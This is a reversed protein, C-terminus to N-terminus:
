AGQHPKGMQLPTCQTKIPLKLSANFTLPVHSVGKAQSQKASKTLVAGKVSALMDGIVPKTGGVERAVAKTL